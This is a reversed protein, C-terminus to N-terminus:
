APNDKNYKINIKDGIRPVSLRSVMVQGATQFEDGKQPKVKLGLVVVPNMNVTEGTVQISVVETAADVGTKALQEMAIATSAGGIGTSTCTIPAGKYKGTYTVYERNEAVPHAEDWIAAIDKVRGPDGPLLVYPACEGEDLQIHYQKSM